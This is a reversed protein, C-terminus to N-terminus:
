GETVVSLGVVESPDVVQRHWQRARNDTARGGREAGYGMAHGGGEGKGTDLGVGCIHRRSGNVACIEGCM